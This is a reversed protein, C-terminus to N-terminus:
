LSTNEGDKFVPEMKPLWAIVRTIAVLGLIFGLLGQIIAWIKSKDILQIDGYGITLQTVVSFYYPDYWTKELNLKVLNSSYIIGFCFWLEFYNLISLIVIRSITAVYHSRNGRRLRDFININIASQFIDFLRYSIAALIILQLINSMSWILFASIIEFLFWSLIYYEIRSGRWITLRKASEDDKIGEQQIERTKFLINAISLYQFYFFLRELYFTIPSYQKIEKLDM